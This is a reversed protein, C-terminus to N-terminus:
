KTGVKCRSHSRDTLPTAGGRSWSGEAPLLGHDSLQQQAPTQSQGLLPQSKPWYPSYRERPGLERLPMTKKEVSTVPTAVGHTGAGGRYGQRGTDWYVLSRERRNGKRIRYNFTYSKAKNRTTKEDNVNYLLKRVKCISRSPDEITHAIKGNAVTEGRENHHTM